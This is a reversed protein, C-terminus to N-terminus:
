WSRTNIGEAKAAFKADMKEQLNKAKDYRKKFGTEQATTSSDGKSQNAPKPARSINSKKATVKAKLEGLHVMLAFSDTSALSKVHDLAKKNRGLYYMVRESGAGLTAIIDDTIADGRGSAISDMAQRVNLDAAQYTETDIASDKALTAARQYHDDVAKDRAKAKASQQDSKSSSQTQAEIKASIMDDQWSSVAETYKVEDFDFDKLTPAAKVPTVQKNGNNGQKLREVEAKLDTVETEYQAVRGKLKKKASAIDSDTFKKDDDTSSEEETQMWVDIEAEEGEEQNQDVDGGLKQAEDTVAGEQINENDTTSELLKNEELTANEAKLEELTKM